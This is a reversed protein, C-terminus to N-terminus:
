VQEPGYPFREDMYAAVTNADRTAADVRDLHENYLVSLEDWSMTGVPLIEGNILALPSLPEKAPQQEATM